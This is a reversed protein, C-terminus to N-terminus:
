LCAVPRLGRTTTTRHNNTDTACLSIALRPREFKCLIKEELDQPPQGAQAALGPRTLPPLVRPSHHCLCSRKLVAAATFLLGSSSSISTCPLCSNAHRALGVNQQAIRSPASCAPSRRAAVVCLLNHRHTDKCPHYTSRLRLKQVGFGCLMAACHTLQGAHDGDGYQPDETARECDAPDPM